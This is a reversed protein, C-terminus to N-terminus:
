HLKRIEDGLDRYAVRLGPPIQPMVAILAELLAMARGEHTGVTLFATNVTVRTGPGPAWIVPGGSKELEIDRALLRKMLV